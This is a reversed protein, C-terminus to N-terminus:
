AQCSWPSNNQQEGQRSQKSSTTMAQWLDGAYLTPCATHSNITKSSNQGSDQLNYLSGFLVKTHDQGPGFM